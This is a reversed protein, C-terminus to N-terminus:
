GRAFVGVFDLRSWDPDLRVMRLNLLSTHSSTTGKKVFLAKLQKDEDDCGM